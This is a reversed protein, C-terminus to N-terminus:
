FFNVKVLVKSLTLELEEARWRWFDLNKKSKKQSLFNESPKHWIDDFVYFFPIKKQSQFNKYPM